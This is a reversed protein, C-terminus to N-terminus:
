KDKVLILIKCDKVDYKSIITLDKIIDINQKENFGVNEKFKEFDFVKKNHLVKISKLNKQNGLYNLYTNFDQTNSTNSFNDPNSIGVNKIEQSKCSCFISAFLIFLIIKNMNIDKHLLKMGIQVSM